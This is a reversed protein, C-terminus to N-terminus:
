RPLETTRLEGASEVAAQTPPRHTDTDTEGSGPARQAEPDREFPPHEHPDRDWDPREDDDRRDPRPEPDRQETM